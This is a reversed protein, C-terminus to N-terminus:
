VKRKRKILASALGGMGFLLLSAPEPVVPEPTVPNVPGDSLIDQAGYIQGNNGYPSLDKMINNPDDFNWYGLLGDESGSLAYNKWYDLQEPTRAYDWIRLEDISGNLNCPAGYTTYGVTVIDPLDPYTFSPNVDTVIKELNIYMTLTGSSRVVAVHYWKETELFNLPTSFGLSGGINDSLNFSLRNDAIYWLYFASHYPPNTVAGIQEWIAQHRSLDHM